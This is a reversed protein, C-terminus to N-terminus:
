LWRRVRAAYDAYAPGFRQRLIREEPRIQLLTLVGMSLPLGLWSAANGLWLGWGALVLLMGLYMPNRTIRYIGQTVLVRTRYPALPNFTTRQRGVAHLGALAVAGGLAALLAAGAVTWAGGGAPWCQAQPVAHALWWMLAACAGDIVPPPIRHEWWRSHQAAEPM